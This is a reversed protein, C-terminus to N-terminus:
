SAPTTQAPEDDGDLKDELAAAKDAIFGAAGAATDKAFGAAGDLKDKAFEAADEAKDKADDLLGM